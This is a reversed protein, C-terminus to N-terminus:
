GDGQARRCLGVTHWLIERVAEEDLGVERAYDAGRRIVEAERAPDLRPLAAGRKLAGVRRATAVRQALLDILAVDIRGIEARLESLDSLREPGDSEPATM